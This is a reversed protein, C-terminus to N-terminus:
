FGKLILSNPSLLPGAFWGAQQRASPSQVEDVAAEVLSEALILKHQNTKYTNKIYDHSLVGVGRPQCCQPIIKDCSQSDVGLTLVVDPCHAILSNQVHCNDGLRHVVFIPCYKGGWVRSLFDVVILFDKPTVGESVLVAVKQPRVRVVVNKTTTMDESNM